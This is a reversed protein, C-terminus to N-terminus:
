DRTLRCHLMLTGYVQEVIWRKKVPVFGARTDSRKVVEVDINLVAGHAAFDQQFGANVWARTVTPTHEAVQDFLRIGILNDSISATTVM